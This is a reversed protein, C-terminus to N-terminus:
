LEVLNQQQIEIRKLIKEWKDILKANNAKKAKSLTSRANKKLRLLTELNKLDEIDTDEDTPQPLQGTTRFIRLDQIARTIMAQAYKCEALTDKREKSSMSQWNQALQNSQMIRQTRWHNM